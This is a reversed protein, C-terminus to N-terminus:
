LYSRRNLDNLVNLRKAENLANILFDRAVAREPFISIMGRRDLSVIVYVTTNNIDVQVHNTGSHDRMGTIPCLAAISFNLIWRLPVESERYPPELLQIRTLLWELQTIEKDM